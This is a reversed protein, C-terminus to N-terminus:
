RTNKYIISEYSSPSLKRPSSDLLPLAFLRSFCWKSYRPVSATGWFWGNRGQPHHHIMSQNIFLLSAHLYIHAQPGSSDTHLAENAQVWYGTLISQAYTVKLLASKTRIPSIIKPAKAPIGRMSKRSRFPASKSCPHMGCYSVWVVTLSWSFGWRFFFLFVLFCSSFHDQCFHIFTTSRFIGLAVQSDCHVVFMLPPAFNHWMSLRPTLPRSFTTHLLFNHHQQHLPWPDDANCPQLRPSRAVM